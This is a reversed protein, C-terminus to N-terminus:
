AVDGVAVIAGERFFFDAQDMLHEDELRQLLSQWERKDSDPVMSNLAAKATFKIMDGLAVREVPRFPGFRAIVTTKARVNVLGARRLWDPLDIARILGAHQRDQRRAADIYRWMIAPDISAIQVCTIDGEKIAIRGGRRTVRKFESVVASLEEDSLYQSTNACWVADFMADGFPVQLLTGVKTEVRCAPHLDDLRVQCARINEPALDLAAVRGSAGVLECLLPLYPGSGSGADLVHWSKAIGVSRLMDEYEPQAALFRADLYMAQSLAHGTSTASVPQSSNSTM